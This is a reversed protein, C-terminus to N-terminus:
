KIERNPGEIEQYIRPIREKVPGFRTDAELDGNSTVSLGDVGEYRIKIQSIDAGPNVIFDYKMGKGDGHYKLDISPYINKYTVSSWNPVDTAWKSPINGLFYNNNHSLRDAGSIEPNLNAGVFQARLVMSEKKYRPHDFKDPMGDPMKPGHPMGDEFLEDTDRTFQYVVEDKCFWFTAGGAEAKFLAKEDWQGRNETFSLLMSSLNSLVMAKQPENSLSPQSNATAWFVVVLLLVFPLSLRKM